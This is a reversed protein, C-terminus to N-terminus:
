DGQNDVVSKIERIDIMANGSISLKFMFFFDINTSEPINNLTKVNSDLSKMFTEIKIYEGNPDKPVNIEFEGFHTYLTFTRLKTKPPM